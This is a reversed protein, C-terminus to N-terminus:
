PVSASLPASNEMGLGDDVDVLLATNSMLAAASAAPAPTDRPRAPDPEARVGQQDAAVTFGTGEHAGKGAAAVDLEACAVQAAPVVAWVPTVRVDSAHTRVRIGPAVTTPAGFDVNRSIVGYPPDARVTAILPLPRRSLLPSPQQPQATLVTM